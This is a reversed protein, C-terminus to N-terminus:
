TSVFWSVISAVSGFDPVASNLAAAILTSFSPDASSSSCAPMASGALTPPCAYHIEVEDGTCLRRGRLARREVGHEARGPVAPVPARAEVPRLAVGRAGPVGGALSPM